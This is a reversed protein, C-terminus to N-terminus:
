TLWSLGDMVALSHSRPGLFYIIQVFGTRPSFVIDGGNALSVLSYVMAHRGNGAMEAVKLHFVGV